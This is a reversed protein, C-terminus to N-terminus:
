AGPKFRGAKTACLSLLKQNLSVMLPPRTVEIAVSYWGQAQRKIHRTRRHSGPASVDGGGTGLDVHLVLAAADAVAYADHDM